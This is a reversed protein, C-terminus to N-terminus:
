RHAHQTRAAAACAAPAGTSVQLGNPFRHGQQAAHILKGMKDEKEPLRSAQWLPCQAEESKFTILPNQIPCCNRTPNGLWFMVCERKAERSTGPAPYKHSCSHLQAWATELLFRPKESPKPRPASVPRCDGWRQAGWAAQGAACVGPAEWRQRKRLPSHRPGKPPAVERNLSKAFPQARGRRGSAPPAAVRAALAARGASGRTPWRPVWRGRHGRAHHPGRAGALGTSPPPCPPSLMVTQPPKHGMLVRVRPVPSSPSGHRDPRLAAPLSQVSSFYLCILRAHLDRPVGFRLRAGGGGGWRGGVAARQPAFGPHPGM